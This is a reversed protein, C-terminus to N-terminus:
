MGNFDAVAGIKAAAVAKDYAEDGDFRLMNAIMSVAGAATTWAYIVDHRAAKMEDVSNEDVEATMAKRYRGLAELMLVTSQTFAEATAEIRQVDYDDYQVQGNDGTIDKMMTERINM